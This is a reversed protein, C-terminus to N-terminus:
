ACERRQTQDWPSVWGPMQRAIARLTAKASEILARYAAREGAFDVGDSYHDADSKLNALAEDDLEVIARRGTDDIIVRNGDHDGCRDYHDRWFIGPVILRYMAM